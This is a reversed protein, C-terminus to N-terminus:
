GKALCLRANADRYKLRGVDIPRLDWYAPAGELQFEFCRSNKDM